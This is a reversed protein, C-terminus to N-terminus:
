KKASRTSSLSLNPRTKRWKRWLSPFVKRCQQDEQLSNFYTWTPCDAGFEKIMYRILCGLKGNKISLVDGAKKFNVIARRSNNGGIVCVDKRHARAAVKQNKACVLTLRLMGLDGIEKLDRKAYKDLYHLVGRGEDEIQRKFEEYSCSNPIQYIQRCYHRRPSEDVRNKALIDRSKRLINEPDM